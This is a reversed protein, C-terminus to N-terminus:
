KEQLFRSRALRISRGVRVKALSLPEIEAWVEHAYRWKNPLIIKSPIESPVSSIKRITELDISGGAGALKIRSGARSRVASPM